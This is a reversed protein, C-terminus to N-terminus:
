SSTLFRGGISAVGLANDSSYGPQAYHVTLGPCLMALRRKVRERLQGNAAVGGAVVVETVGPYLQHAYVVAKVVSNAVCQIVAFAVTAADIGADLARLAATCPGSFSMRAGQVRSPLRFDKASCVEALKELAPGAPFPLGLRVGVADIFQGAHLDLGEGISEIFYGFRTPRALLVDTTGGSIHVAVHPQNADRTLFHAAAALHGEQHSTRVLPLGLVAALSTMWSEGACFVPMYSQVYPRPRVSVALLGWTPRSSSPCEQLQELLSQMVQPIQRVHLFVADSQRLGKSGMPVPLLMRAEAVVSGTTADLACASTTYNSTDMGLVYM